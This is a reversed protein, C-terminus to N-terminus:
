MRHIGVNFGKCNENLRGFEDFITIVPLDHRKAVEFDKKSHGSTIKM